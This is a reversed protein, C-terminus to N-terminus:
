NGLTKCFRIKCTGMNVGEKHLNAIAYRCTHAHAGNIFLCVEGNNPIIIKLIHTLIKALYKTLIM